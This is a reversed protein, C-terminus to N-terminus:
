SQQDDKKTTTNDFQGSLNKPGSPVSVFRSGLPLTTAGSSLTSVSSTSPQNVQMTGGTPFDRGPQVPFRDPGSRTNTRRANIDPEGTAVGTTVDSRAISEGIFRGFVPSIPTNSAIASGINRSLDHTMRYEPPLNSLRDELDSPAPTSTETQSVPPASEVTEPLGRGFRGFRVYNGTGRVPQRNARPSGTGIPTGRGTVQVGATTINITNKDATLRPEASTEDVISVGKVSGAVRGTPTEVDFTHGTSKGLIAAGIPSTPSLRPHVGKSSSSGTVEFTHTKGNLEVTVHKGPGVGPTARPDVITSNKMIKELRIINNEHVAQQEKASDYEANERLDGHAASTQLLDAIRARGVTTHQKHQKRIDSFESQTLLHEGTGSVSGIDPLPDGSDEDKSPGGGIAVGFPHRAYRIMGSEDMVGRLSLVDSAPLRMRAPIDRGRIGEDKKKKPPTQEEQVDEQVGEIKEPEKKEPEKERVFENSAFVFAKGGEQARNDDPHLVEQYGLNLPDILPSDPNETAVEGTHSPAFRQLPAIGEFQKGIAPIGTTRGYRVRGDSGKIVERLQPLFPLAAYGSVAPATAKDRPANLDDLEKQKIRETQAVRHVEGAAVRELRSKAEVDPTGARAKEVRISQSETRPSIGSATAQYGRQKVSRALAVDEATMDAGTLRALRDTKGTIGLSEILSEMEPPAEGFMKEPTQKEADAYVVQGSEDLKPLSSLITNITAEANLRTNGTFDRTQEWQKRERESPVHTYSVDGINERELDKPLDLVGKWQLGAPYVSRGDVQADEGTFYKGGYVTRKITRKRSAPPTGLLSELITARIENSVRSAGKEADSIDALKPRRLTEGSPLEVEEYVFEGTKPDLELETENRIKEIHRIVAQRGADKIARTVQGRRATHSRVAKQYEALGEQSSDFDGRFPAEGLPSLGQVENGEADFKTHTGAAIDRRTKEEAAARVSRANELDKLAAAIHTKRENFAEASRGLARLYEEDTADQEEIRTATRVLSDASKGSIVGASRSFEPSMLGKDLRKQIERAAVAEYGTMEREVGLVTEEIPEGTEKDTRVQVTRPKRMFVGPRRGSSDVGVVETAQRTGMVPVKEMVPKNDEDYVPAGAEDVKQKREFKLNGKEDVEQYSEMVPSQFTKKRTETRYGIISPNKDPSPDSYIPVKVEETEPSERTEWKLRRQALTGAGEARQKVQQAATRTWRGGPGKATEVKTVPDIRFLEQNLTPDQVGESFLESSQMGIKGQKRLENVNQLQQRTLGSGVIRTSGRDGERKMSPLVTGAPQKPLRDLADFIHGYLYDISGPARGRHLYAPGGSQDNPRSRVETGPFKRQQDEVVSKLLGPRTIDYTRQGTVPDETLTTQRGSQPYATSTESTDADFGLLDRFESHTLGAEEGELRLGGEGFRQHYIAPSLLVEGTIKNNEIFQKTQKRTSDDGTNVLQDLHETAAKLRVDRQERELSEQIQSKKGFSINYLVLDQAYAEDGIKGTPYSDRQPASASFTDFTNDSREMERFKDRYLGARTLLRRVYGTRAAAREARTEAQPRPGRGALTPNGAEDFTLRSPALQPDVEIDAGLAQESTTPGEGYVSGLSEAWTKEAIKQKTNKVLESENASAKSAAQRAADTVSLDKVNIPGQEYEREGSDSVDGTDQLLEAKSVPGYESMLETTDLDDVGPVGELFILHAILDEETPTKGDRSSVYGHKDSYPSKPDYTIGPLGGTTYTRLFEPVGQIAWPLDPSESGGPALLERDYAQSKEYRMDAVDSETAFKEAKAKAIASAEKSREERSKKVRSRKIDGKRQEGRTHGKRKKDEPTDRERAKRDRDRERNRGPAEKMIERVVHPPLEALRRDFPSQVEDPAKEKSLALTQEIIEKEDDTLESSTVQKPSGSPPPPVPKKPTGTLLPTTPRSSTDKPSTTDAPSDAKKANVRADDARAEELSKSILGEIKKPRKKAM